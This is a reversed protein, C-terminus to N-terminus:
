DMVCRVSAGVTLSIGGSYAGTDLYSLSRSWAGIPAGDSSSWWVGNGGIGNFLGNYLRGGGPFGTFSSSNTAGVNSPTWLTTGTSKMKGGAGNEGGLYIILTTWESDTPVHWGTPALIKNPTNPDNDHIGAVAYWNYLKGYTTGNATTNNYYCWAGTTLAGWATPDTVQPIPTGDRYTTVDLNINSWVQTGNTITPIAAVTSFTIQTGYATGVSNTAYARVYYLTGYTLLSISSTYSGIGTGNSIIGQNTTTTPNTTSSWVIGRSTIPSGGDSLIVGGSSATSSTIGSAETTTLTPLTPLTPLTALTIFVVEQGYATGASNTAYARLYYTTVPALGTLNSTFIGIGSGDVTKTTLLITPNASTSWCVGRATVNAGGNSTINGGSTASSFTISTAETTTLTPLVSLTSFSIENGYATGSSTTAYARVYYTTGPSLGTLNSTFNSAGNYLINNATTPNTTTAWVIGSGQITGGGDNTITGGSTASSSTIASVPTTTITPIFGDTTVSNGATILTQKDILGQGTPPAPPNQGELYINKGSAPLVTLFKNLISNVSNSTLANGGLSLNSNNTLSPFLLSTLSPSNYIQFDSCSALSSLNLSSVNSLLINNCTTLSSFNITAPLYNGISISGPLLNYNSFSTVIDSCSTLAPFSFFTINLNDNNYNPQILISGTLTHLMPFTLSTLSSLGELEFRGGITQVSPLNLNVLTSNAQYEYIRFMNIHSLLPL